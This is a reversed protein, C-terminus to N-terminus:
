LPRGTVVVFFPAQWGSDGKFRVDEAVFNGTVTESEIRFARGPRMSPAILATVEVAGKEKRTPAGILNGTTSSFVVAQEGTTGGRQWLQLAGDRITWQAGAMTAVRDLLDRASGTLSLGSLATSDAEGLDVTGLPVGMAAAARAAFDALTTDTALTEDVRASQYARAGDQAEITLIRDVGQREVRAGDAIPNGTFILRPVESQYGVLLRVVANDQQVLAITDPSAGWLQIKAPNPKSTDSMEVDFGIRFNAGTFERGTSGDTGLQLVTQRM